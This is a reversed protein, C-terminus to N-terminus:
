SPSEVRGEEPIGEMTYNGQPLQELSSNQKRECDDQLGKPNEFQKAM